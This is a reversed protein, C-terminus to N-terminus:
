ESVTPRIFKSLLLFVASTYFLEFFTIRLFIGLALAPKGLSILVLRAFIDYILLFIAALGMRLYDNELSMKATVKIILYTWVPYLLTHIGYLSASFIDQLIGAFLALLLAPGLDLYFASLVVCTFVLAPKAYFLRFSNLVTAELLVAALVLIFFIWKKM